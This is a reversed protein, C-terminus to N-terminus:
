EVNKRKIPSNTFAVGYCDESADDLTFERVGKARNDAGVTRVSAFLEYRLKANQMKCKANRAANLM